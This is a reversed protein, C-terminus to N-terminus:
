ELRTDKHAGTGDDKIFSILPKQGGRRLKVGETDTMFFSMDADTM